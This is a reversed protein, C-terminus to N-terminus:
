KKFKTLCIYHNGFVCVIYIPLYNCFILYFTVFKLQIVKKLLEKWSETELGREFLQKELDFFSSGETAKKRWSFSNKKV